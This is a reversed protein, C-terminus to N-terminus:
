HPTSHVRKCSGRDVRRDRNGVLGGEAALILGHGRGFRNVATASPGLVHQHWSSSKLAVRHIHEDHKGVVLDVPYGIEDIRSSNKM